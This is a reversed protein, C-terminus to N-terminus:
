AGTVSRFRASGFNPVDYSPMYTRDYPAPYM